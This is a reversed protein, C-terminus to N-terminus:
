DSAKPLGSVREANRNEGEKYHQSSSYPGAWSITALIVEAPYTKLTSSLIKCLFFRYETTTLNSNYGVSDAQGAPILTQVMIRFEVSVGDSILKLVKPLDGYRQIKREGYFTLIKM